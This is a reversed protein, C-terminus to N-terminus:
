TARRAGWALGLGLVKLWEERTSGRAMQWLVVLAVVAFSGFLVRSYRGVSMSFAAGPNFALTLRGYSGLVDHPVYPTLHGVALAKTIVDLVIVCGAAIWFLRRPAAASTM